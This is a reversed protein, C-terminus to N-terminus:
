LMRLTLYYIFLSYMLPKFSIRPALFGNNHYRLSVEKKGFMPIIIFYGLTELIFLKLVWCLIVILLMHRIYCTIQTSRNETIQFNQLPPYRLISLTLGFSNVPYSNNTGQLIIQLARCAHTYSQEYQPFQTVPFAVPLLYILLIFQFSQLQCELYRLQLPKQIEM